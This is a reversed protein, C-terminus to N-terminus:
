KSRFALSALLAVSAGYITFCYIRGPTKGFFFTWFALLGATSSAVVTVVVPLIPNSWGRRLILGAAAVGPFLFLAFYALFLLLALPTGNTFPLTLSSLAALLKPHYSM